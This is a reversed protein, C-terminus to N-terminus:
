DTIYIELKMELMKIHMSNLAGRKDGFLQQYHDSKEVVGMGCRLLSDMSMKSIIEIEAVDDGANGGQEERQVDEGQEDDVATTLDIGRGNDKCLSKLFSYAGEQTRTALLAAWNKSWTETGLKLSICM